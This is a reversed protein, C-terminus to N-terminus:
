MVALAIYNYSASHFCVLNKTTRQKEVCVTNVTFACPTLFFITLNVEVGNMNFLRTVIIIPVFIPLECLTTNTTTSHHEM